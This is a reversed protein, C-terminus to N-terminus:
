PALFAENVKWLDRTRPVSNRRHQPHYTGSFEDDGTFVGPVGHVLAPEFSFAEPPQISNLRHQPVYEERMENDYTTEGPIGVFLGVNVAPLSRADSLGVWIDEPECVLPTLFPITPGYPRLPSPQFSSEYLLATAAVSLASSGALGIELALSAAAGVSITAAGNLTGAAAADVAGLRSKGLVFSGLM